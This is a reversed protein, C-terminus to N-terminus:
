KKKIKILPLRFYFTTCKNVVSRYNLVGHHHEIISKSISLGLGTGDKKRAISSDVQFFRQFIKQKVHEPIGPGYDTISVSVWKKNLKMSINVKAGMPSFKIANSFLNTLVQILRDADAYVYADVLSTCVLHVGYKKAFLKNLHVAEEILTKVNLEEFNFVMHGDQIKEMDLVDNILRTLRECNIHAINLLNRNKETHALESERLLSLSGRISTLPTRLEHSVVSIFENKLDEIKKRESLDRTVKGFGILEGWENYIATIVVNAWFLSGDKKVRWGEEEYRGNKMAHELEEQPHNRDRAEQTYFISFHKGIIEHAKYQKIAQAGKNWTLIYGRTDLMFIAYDKINEVLLRFPKEALKFQQFVDRDEEKSAQSLREETSSDCTLNILNSIDELKVLVTHVQSDAFIPYFNCQWYHKQPSYFPLCGLELAITKPRGNKFVQHIGDCVQTYFDNPQSNWLFVLPKGLISHTLFSPSNVEEIEWEKDVVFYLQQCSKIWSDILFVSNSLTM